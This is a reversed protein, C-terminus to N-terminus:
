YEEREKEIFGMCKLIIKECRTEEFCKNNSRYCYGNSCKYCICESCKTKVEKNEDM